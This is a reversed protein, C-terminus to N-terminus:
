IRFGRIDAPIRCYPSPLARCGTQSYIGGRGRGRCKRFLYVNGWLLTRSLRLVQGHGYTTSSATTDILLLLVFIFRSAENEVAKLTQTIDNVKSKTSTCIGTTKTEKHKSYEQLLQIKKDEGLNHYETHNEDSILGQLM